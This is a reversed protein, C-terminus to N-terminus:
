CEEESLETGCRAIAASSRKKIAKSKEEHDIELARARRVHRVGRSSRRGSVSVTTTVDINRRRSSSPLSLTKSKVSWDALLRIFLLLLVGGVILVTGSIIPAYTVIIYLIEFM